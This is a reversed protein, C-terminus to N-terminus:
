VPPHYYIAGFFLNLMQRTIEGPTYSIELLIAFIWFYLLYGFTLQSGVEPLFRAHFAASIGINVRLLYRYQSVQGRISRPKWLTRPGKIGGYLLSLSESHSYIQLLDPFFM